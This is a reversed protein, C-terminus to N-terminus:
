YIGWLIAGAVLIVIYVGPLAYIIMPSRKTEISTFLKGAVRLSVIM